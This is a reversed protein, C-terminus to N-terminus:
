YCCFYNNKYTSISCYYIGKPPLLKKSNASCWGVPHFEWSKINIWFDGSRDDGYGVYRLSLLEGCTMVVSALWYSSKDEPNPIELKMGVKFGSQM